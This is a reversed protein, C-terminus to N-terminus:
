RLLSFNHVRLGDVEGVAFTMQGDPEWRIGLGGDDAFDRQLFKRIRPGGNSVREIMGNLRPRKFDQGPSAAAGADQNAVDRPGHGIM